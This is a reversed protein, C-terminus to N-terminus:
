LEMQKLNHSIKDDITLIDNNVHFFTVLFRCVYLHSFVMGFNSKSVDGDIM